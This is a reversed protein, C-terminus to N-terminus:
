WKKKIIQLFPPGRATHKRHPCSYDPFFFGPREPKRAYIGLLLLFPYLVSIVYFQSPYEPERHIFKGSLIFKQAAVWLSPEEVAPFSVVTATLAVGVSTNYWFVVRTDLAAVAAALVLAMLLGTMLVM